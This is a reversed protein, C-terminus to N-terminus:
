RTVVVHRIKISSANGPATPEFTIRAAYTPGDANFSPRGAWAVFAGFQVQPKREEPDAQLFSATAAQHYQMAHQGEVGDLSKSLIREMLTVREILVTAVVRLALDVTLPLGQDSDSPELGDPDHVARRAAHLMEAHFMQNLEARDSFVVRVKPENM